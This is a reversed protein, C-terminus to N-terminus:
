NTGALGGRHCGLQLALTDGGDIPAAFIQNNPELATANEQDV